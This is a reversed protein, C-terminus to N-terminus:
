GSCACWYGVASRVLRNLGRRTEGARVRIALSHMLAQAMTAALAPTLGHALHGDRAAQEFRQEFLHEIKKIVQELDAAIESHNMAEAPATCFVFCGHATENKFYTDLVAAYFALLSESLKPSVALAHATNTAMQAVFQDMASRYLAKKDGFANYISPRNMKMAAALDDLSTAAYGQRQFVNLARELAAERNYKPPRGRKGTM